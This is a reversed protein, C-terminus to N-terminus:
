VAAPMAMKLTVEGTPEHEYRGTEVFGYQDYFHRGVSNKEFVEVHLPGRLGVAYDTLAKGLGRGHLAPDLFLGGIEDGILAIFGAPTGNEEMVWTEANPLYINRMDKAVQAVFDEKLFPHAYANASQWISILADTDKAQYHRIMTKSSEYAGTQLTVHHRWISTHLQLFDVCIPDCLSQSEHELEIAMFVM